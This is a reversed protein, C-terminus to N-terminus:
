RILAIADVARMHEKIMLYVIVFTASRSMGVYSFFVKAYYFFVFIVVMIYFGRKGTFM